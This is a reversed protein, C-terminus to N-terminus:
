KMPVVVTSSKYDYFMLWCGEEDKDGDVWTVFGTKGSYPQEDIDKSGPVGYVIYKLNGEKDCKYGLMFYGYKKIYPYYNLMPYYAITYKNYNSINCMDDLNNVKVKYWKCYKIEKFKNKVEKFDKVINEFFEGLSGRMEFDYPDIERDNSIQSEYDDFKSGESELEDRKKCEGMCGMNDTYSEHCSDLKKDDKEENCVYCKEEHHDKHEKKENHDNHEHKAEKSEKPNVPKVNNVPQYKDNGKLVKCHKWSEGVNEGNMFGYMLYTLEGGVYKCIAAGSIKEYSFDLGAINDVYYEKTAEGKGTNNIDLTGLDVIQKMDKKYCILVVSYGEEKKLNQAYFTIKCKEGKAEIKAYGSLPKESSAAHSKEDEQLIIFNRYLKNHAM